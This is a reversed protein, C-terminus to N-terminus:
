DDYPNEVARVVKRAEGLLVGNGRAEEMMEPHWSQLRLVAEFYTLIAKAGIHM